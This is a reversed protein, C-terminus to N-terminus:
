KTEAPVGYSECEAKAAHWRENVEKVLGEIDFEACDAKLQEWIANFEAEDAAFIIQPVAENILTTLAQVQLNIEEDESAKLFTYASSTKTMNKGGLVEQQYALMNFYGDHKSAWSARLKNDARSEDIFANDSTININYGDSYTVYSTYPTTNCLDNKAVFTGGGEMEMEVWSGDEQRQAYYQETYQPVGDENYEWFMGEPGSVYWRQTDMNYYWETLRLAAELKEGELKSSLGWCWTSGVPADYYLQASTDEPWVSMYGWYDDAGPEGAGSWWDWPVLMYQGENCKGSYTQWDIAKSDPDLLGRQNATFYWKLGAYFQTSEDILFVLDATGDQRGEFIGGSLSYEVMGHNIPYVHGVGSLAGWDGMFGLPYTKLGNKTEPELKWMEELVDLFAYWDPIAPEGIKEYLDYRIVAQNNISNNPGVATPVFYVGGYKAENFKLAAELIENEFISPLKDAYEALDLYLGAAIATEYFTNNADQSKGIYVDTLEGSALMTGPIDIDTSPLKVELEIGLETKLYEVFWPADSHDGQGPSSHFTLSVIEDFGAEDDTDAPDETDDTKDDSAEQKTDDEKKDDEKKGGCAALSLVM